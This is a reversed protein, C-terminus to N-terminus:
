CGPEISPSPPPVHNPRQTFLCTEVTEERARGLRAILRSAAELRIRIPRLIHQLHVGILFPIAPVIARIRQAVHHGRLRPLHPLPFQRPQSFVDLLQPTSPNV